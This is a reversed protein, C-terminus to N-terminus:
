GPSGDPPMGGGLPHIDGDMPEFPWGKMDKM